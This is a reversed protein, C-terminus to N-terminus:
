AGDQVYKFKHVMSLEAKVLEKGLYASHSLQTVWKNEIITWYLSRADKGEIVRLLKDDYSYHEVTIIRKDAQPLVVFYGARDMQIKEPEKAEVVPAVAMQEVTSDDNCHSCGCSPKQIMSLEKVKEVITEVDECGIMDVIEVQDRFSEVESRTVNRLIPRKAKSGVVRMNGDVGHASLSMLTQGPFHGKPDTGALMLFRIAPNTVTNKIVKDIGINETETKGVICVGEPKEAVLKEPLDLSGLTSIAVSCETDTCLVNYEGPVPPWTQEKVEFACGLADEPAADPFANHFMNMAVAPFCYECGLCAYKIPDMESQWGSIKQELGGEMRATAGRLSTELIDLTEKM